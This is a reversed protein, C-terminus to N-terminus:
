AAEGGLVDFDLRMEEADGQVRTAATVAHTASLEVGFGRRGARQAGLLASGSGTFPDVVIGDPPALTALKM